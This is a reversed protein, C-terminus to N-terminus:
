RRERGPVQYPYDGYKEGYYWLLDDIISALIEKETKHKDKGISPAYCTSNHSPEDQYIAIKEGQVDLYLSEIMEYM